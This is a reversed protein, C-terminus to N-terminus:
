NVNCIVTFPCIDAKDFVHEFVRGLEVMILVDAGYILSLAQVLEHM